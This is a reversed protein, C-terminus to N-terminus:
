NYLIILVTYVYKNDVRRKECNKMLKHIKEAIYNKLLLEFITIKQMKKININQSSKKWFNNQKSLYKPLYILIYQFYSRLFLKALKKLRFEIEHRESQRDFICIFIEINWLQKAFFICSKAWLNSLYKYKRQIFM